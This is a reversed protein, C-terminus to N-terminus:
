TETWKEKSHGTVNGSILMTGPRNPPLSLSVGPNGVVMFPINPPPFESTFPRIVKEEVAPAQSCWLTRQSLQQFRPRQVPSQHIRLTPFCPSLPSSILDTGHFIVLTPWPTLACVEPSKEQTGIGIHVHCAHVCACVHVSILCKERTLM